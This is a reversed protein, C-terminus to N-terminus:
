RTDLTGCRQFGNSGFKLENRLEETVAAGEDTALLKGSGVDCKHCERQGHEADGVSGKSRDAVGADEGGGSGHSRCDSFESTTAHRRARFEFSKDRAEFEEQTTGPNVSYTVTSCSGCCPRPCHGQISPLAGGHQLWRRQLSTGPCCRTQISQCMREIQNVPYASRSLLFMNHTTTWNPGSNIFNTM